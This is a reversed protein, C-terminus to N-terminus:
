LTTKIKTTIKTLESKDIGLSNIIQGVVQLKQNYTLNSDKINDVTQNLKAKVKAPITAVPLEAEEINTLEERIIERLESKTLKM